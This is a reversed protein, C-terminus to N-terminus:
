QLRPLADIRATFGHSETPVPAPRSRTRPEAGATPTRPSLANGAAIGLANAAPKEGLDIQGGFLGWQGGGMCQGM